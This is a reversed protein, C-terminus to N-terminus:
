VQNQPGNKLYLLYGAAYEKGKIKTLEVLHQEIAPVLGEAQIKNWSMGSWPVRKGQQRPAPRAQEPYSATRADVRKKERILESIDGPVPMKKFDKLWTRFARGVEELTYDELGVTFAKIKTSLSSTDGGFKPFTNYCQTVYEAVTVKWESSESPKISPL